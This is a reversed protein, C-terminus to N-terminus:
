PLDETIRQSSQRIGNEPRGDGIQCRQNESDTTKSQVCERIADTWAFLDEVTEVRIDKAAGSLKINNPRRAYLRFLVTGHDDREPTNCLVISAYLKNKRLDMCQTDVLGGLIAKITLFGQKEDNAFDSDQNNDNDENQDDNKSTDEQNLVNSLRDQIKESVFQRFASYTLGRFM